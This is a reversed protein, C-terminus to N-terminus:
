RFRHRRRQPVAACRIKPAAAVTDVRLVVSQRGAAAGANCDILLGTAAVGSAPLLTLM